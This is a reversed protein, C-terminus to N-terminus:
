GRLKARIRPSAGLGLLALAVILAPILPLGTFPLNGPRDPEDPGPGAPTSPDNGLPEDDRNNSPDPDHTESTVRAVNVIRGDSLVRATLTIRGVEGADMRGKRCVISNQKKNAECDLDKSRVGVLRLGEPLKDTVKVGLAAAPGNNRVVLRFQVQDGARVKDEGVLRKIIQMDAGPPVVVTDDDRNNSPDPDPTDTTVRAVNNIRRGTFNNKVKAIVTITASQGVALTGLECFVLRGEACTGRNSRVRVLELGRPLRDRVTVNQAAAPGNNTVRLRFRVREGPRVSQRNAQKVIAVDAESGLTTEVTDENNFPNVDDDNSVVGTNTILQPADQSVFVTITIPPYAEGPNLIDNRECSVAQAATGSCDWGPGSVDQVQLYDPVLDTVVTPETSTDDSVNEVILQFQGQQGRVMPGVIQKDIALDFGDVAVPMQVENSESDYDEGPSQSGNYDATAMNRVITGGEVDDNVRVRFAITTTQGVNLTGGNAADAGAGLRFVVEDDGGDYEAQDDGAADTKLGANAGHLIELSGPVYTTHEPISDRLVVNIAHDPGNSRAQVTYLIEDGPELEGGNVDEQTKTLLLEPAQLEFALAMMVPRFFEKKDPKTDFAAVVETSGAPIIGNINVRDVDIGFTNTQKPSKDTNYNGRNSITSNFFDNQPNVKDSLLQGALRLRDGDKVPEDDAKPKRCERGAPTDVPPCDEFDGDSAMVGINGTVNGTPPTMFGSLTIRERQKNGGLAVFGDHLTMNRIPQSDDKFFVVMGWGGYAFDGTATQVNAVRYTGSGAARVENTVDKTAAYHQRSDHPNAQVRGVWQERDAVITQYGSAPTSFRVTDRQNPNPAKKGTTGQGPYTNGVWYLQARLVEAGAPLNLNAASSNFTNSNSDVDVYRMNYENNTVKKGKRQRALACGNANPPCTIVTNGVLLFNGRENIEYRMEFPLDGKGADASPVLVAGAVLIALFFLIAPIRKLRPKTSM